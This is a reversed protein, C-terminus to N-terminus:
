PVPPKPAPVIRVTVAELAFVDDGLADVVVHLGRKIATRAVPKGDQEVRTKPTIDIEVIAPYNKDRSKVKLLNNKHDMEVVPGIVRYRDHAITSSAALFLIAPTSLLLSRRTM